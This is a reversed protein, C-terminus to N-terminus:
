AGGGGRRRAAFAAAGAVAGAAALAAVRPRLELWTYLSGRAKDTLDGDARSDPSAEYLYGPAGNPEPTETRQSPIGQRALAADVLSPATSQGLAMLKGAGGAFLDRVPHEAAYVVCDAVVGPHYIPPAGQPKVDMKNRANTPFPTNISAPKVSTVSIPVGEAMLERRMADLAGEVAHKSAAYASHLPLSVLAEVSSIAIIAGGGSRRLHPLAAKWGHVQGLYNVEIIRRFEDVTTQELTAYVATAADTVLTDLGGFTRVALDTVAEVQAYDAVDCVAPAARGGAATIEDVLSRLGAEDRAAVVVKAGGAALRRASERGIGSSAGFVLAVQESLPKLKISPM